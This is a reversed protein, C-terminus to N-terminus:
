QAHGKKIGFRELLSYFDNKFVININTGPYLRKLLEVKKKKESAYKQNMTTLEIFTNFRPLYFDPSFAMTVNGEEDWQIPFTRPEYEWDLHYMDLIGAFEEESPHKFIIPKKGDQSPCEAAPSYLQKNRAYYELFAAGEKIGIFDTNLTIGYLSPDSWDRHYITSIYRKHKRDTLELFREANSRDLRLNHMVRGTRVEDSAIIRVHIAEPHRSFIVQAGLGFIIAPQESIYGKLRSEIHEAFTLGQSSLNLYFGPSEKLMHLEHKDAIEPLWQNVVFDHTILPLDLKKALLGSIEKGLSGTQRSITLFVLDTM